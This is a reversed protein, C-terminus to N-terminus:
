TMSAQEFFPCAFSEIRNLSFLYHRGHSEIHFIMPLCVLMRSFLMIGCAPPM